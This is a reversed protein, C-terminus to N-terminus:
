LSEPRHLPTGDNACGVAQLIAGGAMSPEGSPDFVVGQLAVGDQEAALRPPAAGFVLV